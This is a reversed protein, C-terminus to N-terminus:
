ARSVREVASELEKSVSVGQERESVREERKARKVAEVLTSPAADSASRRRLQLTQKLHKNTLAQAEPSANAKMAVERTKVEGTETDVIARIQNFFADKRSTGGWFIIAKSM